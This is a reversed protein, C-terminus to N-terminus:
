SMRLSSAYQQTLSFFAPSYSTGQSRITIVSSARGPFYEAQHWYRLFAPLEHSSFFHEQVLLEFPAVLFDLSSAKIRAVLEQDMTEVNLLQWGQQIGHWIYRQEWEIVLPSTEITQLIQMSPKLGRDALAQIWNGRTYWVKRETGWLALTSSTDCLHQAHRRKPNGTRGVYHIEDTEPDRETYIVQGAPFAKQCCSLILTRQRVESLALLAAECEKCCLSLATGNGCLTYGNFHSLFDNRCTKKQCLCCPLQRHALMAEHCIKCRTYLTFGNASSVGGFASAPQFKCCARCRRDPQQLYWNERERWHEEDAQRSIIRRNREQQRTKEREQQQQHWSERHATMRHYRERRNLQECENCIKKCEDTKAKRQSFAALPKTEKCQPCSREDEILEVVSIEDRQM